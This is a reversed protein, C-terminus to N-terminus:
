LEIELEVGHLADDWHKFPELNNNLQTGDEDSKGHKRDNDDLYDVDLSTVVEAGHNANVRWKKENEVDETDEQVEVKCVHDNPIHVYQKVLAGSKDNDHFRHGQHEHAPEDHHM